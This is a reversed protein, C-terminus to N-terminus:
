SSLEFSLRHKVGTVVMPQGHLVKPRYKFRRVAEMASRDFVGVPEAEIIMPDVVRGLEDVTFQILVYGEIGRQRAREPYQPSVKVIPLLEGDPVGQPVTPDLIENTPVPIGVELRGDGVDITVEFHVEPEPPPPEPPVPRPPEPEVPEDELVAEFSLVRGRPSDNIGDDEAQILHQMMLVLAATVALALGAAGGHRPLHRRVANFLIM